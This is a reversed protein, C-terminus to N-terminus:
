SNQHGNKKTHMNVCYRCHRSFFLNITKVQIRFDMYVFEVIKTIKQYGKLFYIAFSLYKHNCVEGKLQLRLHVNASNVCKNMEFDSSCFICNRNRIKDVM